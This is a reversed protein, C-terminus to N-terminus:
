RRRHLDDGVPFPRSYGYYRHEWGIVLGDLEKALEMPASLTGEYGGLLLAAYYDDVGTEGFDYFIVPGGPKYYTDNVFYRNNFMRTDSDNFHDIPMSINYSPVTADFTDEYLYSLRLGDTVKWAQVTLTQLSLLLAFARSSLRM